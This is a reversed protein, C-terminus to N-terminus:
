AILLARMREASFVLTEVPERAVADGFSPRGALQAREGLFAGPGLSLYHQPSGIVDHRFVEVQGSLVIALGEGVEGVKALVEGAAYRRPKGFRRAREIDDAGLVPFVQDRRTELIPRDFNNTSSGM